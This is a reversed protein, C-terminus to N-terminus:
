RIFRLIDLLKVIGSFPGNSISIIGVLEGKDNLMAGGSSGPVVWATTIVEKVKLICVQGFPGGGFFFKPKSPCEGYGVTVAIEKDLDIVSGDTRYTPYALGHSMSHVHERNDLSKAIDLFKDDAATLILLDSRPDEKIISIKVDKGSESKAMLTKGDESVEVCHGATLMRVKGEVLVQVGSCTGINSHLLFIRDRIYADSTKDERKCRAGSFCLGIMLLYGILIKM